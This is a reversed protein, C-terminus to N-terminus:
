MSRIHDQPRVLKLSPLTSSAPPQWLGACLACGLSKLEGVLLHDVVPDHNPLLGNLFADSLDFGCNVSAVEPQHVGLEGIRLACLHLNHEVLRLGANVTHLLIARQPTCAGSYVRCFTFSALTSALPALAM